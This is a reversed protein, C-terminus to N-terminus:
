EWGYVARIRAPIEGFVLPNSDDSNAMIVYGNGGQLHAHFNARFGWNGGTHGFYRNAEGAKAPRHASDSGATFGLAYQGVGGPTVMKMAMERNLVRNSRGELSLQVEIMFKALDTPTTWLGAAYLEPYVHWKADGRGISRDQRVGWGYGRAANADKAAPLPQCFCSHVMGIPELVSQKLIAPFPRGLAESLALQLITSGGGSYEYKTNPKWAVVVPETTAPTKGGLGRYGLVQATTPLPDSPLYGPFGSVTTGATMSMLLRPTVIIEELYEQKEILKWTKLISNIDDDLGFAGDQIAKLIAMASVPKSISAAQFLTEVNTALGAEVDAIGYNKAWLIEFNRVVAIGLAPTTHDLLLQEISKSPDGAASRDRPQEVRRIDAAHQGLGSGVPTQGQATIALCLWAVSLNLFRRARM